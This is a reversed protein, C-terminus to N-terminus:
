GKFGGADLFAQEEQTMTRGLVPNRHPFRGFKAIIDLHEQAADISEQGGHAKMLALCTEQDELDESHMFPLYCFVRLDEPMEQDQGKAVAQKAFALGRADQAFAKASNRNLNRTFQDLLLILALMSLSEQAWHDLAGDSAVEHTKGFRQDIAADFDDDKSWWKEHGAERWFAIIEEPTTTM